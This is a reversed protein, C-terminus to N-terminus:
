SPPLSKILPPRPWIQTLHRPPIQTFLSSSAEPSFIYIHSDVACRHYQFGFSHILSFPLYLLPPSSLLASDLSLRYKSTPYLLLYCCLSLPAAPPPPPVGAPQSTLSALCPSHNTLFQRSLHLSFWPWQTQCCPPRVPSSLLLNMPVISCFGFSLPRLTFLHHPFLPCTPLCSKWSTKKQSTSCFFPCHSTHCTPHFSSKQVSPAVKFILFFNKKHTYSRCRPFISDFPFSQRCAGVM